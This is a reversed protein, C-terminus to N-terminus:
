QQSYFNYSNQVLKQQSSKKIENSNKVWKNFHNHLWCSNTKFEYFTNCICCSTLWVPQWLWNTWHSSHANETDPLPHKGVSVWWNLLWVCQLRMWLHVRHNASVSFQYPLSSLIRCVNRTAYGQLNPAIWAGILFLMGEHSWLCSLRSQWRSYRCPLNRCYLVPGFAWFGFEKILRYVSWVNGPRRAFRGAM